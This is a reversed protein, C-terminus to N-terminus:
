PLNDAHPQFSVEFWAGPTNGRFTITAGRGHLLRQVLFLGLGMGGSERRTTFFPDFAKEANKRSVGNGDDMVDFGHSRAVIWVTTGGHDRANQLLHDLVLDLEAASLPAVPQGEVELALGLRQAIAEAAPGAARVEVAEGSRAQAQALGRMAVLLAEIRAIAAAMTSLLEDRQAPEEADPLLETAARLSTLPTRLEHTVHASYTSLDAVRWQLENGMTLLSQAMDGFERTGFRTPVPAPTGPTHRITEAWRVMAASPRLILRTLLWGLTLTALVVGTSIVLVATAWGMAPVAIRM